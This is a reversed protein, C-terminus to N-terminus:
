ETTLDALSGHTVALLNSPHLGILLGQRGGSVFVERLGSLHRDYYTTYCKKMGIPSCGGRIYGTLGLLEKVHVLEVYKEGSAKAAKKLDLHELVPIVFISICRDKGRGVLTKFFDDPSLGVKKYVSSGDIQGDAVDYVIERYHIGEKELLRMANTKALKKSM